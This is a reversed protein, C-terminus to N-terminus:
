KIIILLQNTFECLVDPSAGITYNMGHVKWIAEAAGKGVMM